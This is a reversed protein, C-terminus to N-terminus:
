KSLIQWNPFARAVDAAMGHICLVASMSAQDVEAWAAMPGAAPATDFLVPSVFITVSNAYDALEIIDSILHRKIAMGGGVDTTGLDDGFLRSRIRFGSPFTVKVGSQPHGEGGTPSDEVKPVQTWDIPPPDVPPPIAGIDDTLKDIQTQLDVDKTILTNIITTLDVGGPGAIMKAIGEWDSPSTDPQKGKNSTLSVWLKHDFVVVSDEVYDEEAQWHGIGNQEVYRIGAALRHLVWNFRQRSPPISTMPWGSSIEPDPPKVIDAPDAATDAWIPCPVPQPIKTPM